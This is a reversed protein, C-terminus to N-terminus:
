SCAVDGNVCARGARHRFLGSYNALAGPAANANIFREAMHGTVPLGRFVKGEMSPRLAHPEASDDLGLRMWGGNGFPKLNRVLTSGLVPSVSTVDAANLFSIVQTEYCLTPGAEAPPCPSFGCGAPTFSGEETNFLQLGIKVCSKGDFVKTFPAVATAGVIDPDVYFRKTPFSVIWESDIGAAHNSLWENYLNQATFVASVADIGRDLSLDYTATVLKGGPLFVHAAAVGLGTNANALSPATNGSATFLVEQSFGDVADAAYSYMSGVAVHIVSANGFLGGSPATFDPNSTNELGASACNAPVGAPQKHTVAAATAGVVTAMEIMEFHGERTRSIDQTGDDGSYAFDRFNVYNTGDPLTGDGAADPGYFMPRTCSTDRTVLSGGVDPTGDVDELSFVTSTWVDFPSLFLNFDLVEVSNEAELFRVKVAKAADTTNVVSVYTQAGANVTYYPFVLVQGLGDPNLEVASSLSAFGAVGAIGAVVATTLSNKKM